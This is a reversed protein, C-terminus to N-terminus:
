KDEKKTLRYEKLASEIDKITDDDFKLNTRIYDLPIIDLQRIFLVGNTILSAKVENTVNLHIIDSHLVLPNTHGIQKMLRVLNEETQVQRCDFVTNQFTPFLNPQLWRGANQQFQSPNFPDNDFFGKGVGFMALNGSQFPPQNFKVGPTFQSQQETQPNANILGMYLQELSMLINTLQGISINKVDVSVEELKDSMSMMVGNIKAITAMKGAPNNQQMM